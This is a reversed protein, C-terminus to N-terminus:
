RVTREIPEKLELGNKLCFRICDCSDVIIREVLDDFIGEDFESLLAPGGDIVEMIAKTTDIAEDRETDLLREKALKTARIQEALSNSQSIFIDSDVLGQQKLTTLLQNQSTLESIKKNLEIVDTSWLMRRNRITQLSSLMNGLIPQGQNKLKFYMRMFAM